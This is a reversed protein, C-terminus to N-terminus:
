RMAPCTPYGATLPAPTLKTIRSLRLWNYMGVKYLNKYLKKVHSLVM